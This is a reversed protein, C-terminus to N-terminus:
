PQGVDSLKRLSYFRQNEQADKDYVRIEDLSDSIVMLVTREIRDGLAGLLTKPANGAEKNAAEETMVAKISHGSLKGAYKVVNKGAQAHQAGVVGFGSALGLGRLLVNKPLEFAGEATFERGKIELRM